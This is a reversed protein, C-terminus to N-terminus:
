LLGLPTTFEFWEDNDMFTRLSKYLVKNKKDNSLCKRFENEDSMFRWEMTVFRGFLNIFGNNVRLQKSVESPESAILIFSWFKHMEGYNRDM